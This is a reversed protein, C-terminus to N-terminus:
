KSQKPYTYLQLVDPLVSLNEFEDCEKNREEKMKCNRGILLFSTEKNSLFRGPIIKLIGFYKPNYDKEYGSFDVNALIRYTTDNFKIEKLDFRWDRNYRLIKGQGSNDYLGTFFEDTPKLTDMGITKGPFQQKEPFVSVFQKKVVDFRRMSYGTNKRTKSKFVTLIQEQTFPDIFKGTSARFIVENGAWEPVPNITESAKVNWNHDTTTSYKLLSWLGTEGISLIEPVKDNDFDAVLVTAKSVVAGTLDREVSRSLTRFTTKVGSGGSCPDTLKEFSGFLIQGKLICVLQECVTATFKGHFIEGDTFFPLLDSSIFAPIHIFKSKDICFHYLEIKGNPKIVLLDDRGDSNGTFPGTFTRDSPSIQGDRINGDNIIFSSNLNNIEQKEFYCFPFPPYNFRSQFPQGKTMDALASDGKREKPGGFVIYYDDILVDTSSNNWFYIQIKYGSKWTLDSLDFLGSIKFWRGLPIEKGSVSVSKWCVNVGLDNNVSFVYAGQIEKDTPFIYVWASVGITSLHELGVEHATRDIAISYSNKGFAKASFQGSHAIGQYLGDKNGSKPDVEFDFFLANPAQSKIQSQNVFTAEPTSSIKLIKNLPFYRIGAFGAIILFIVLISIFTIRKQKRNM